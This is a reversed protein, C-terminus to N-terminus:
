WLHCWIHGHCVLDRNTRLRGSLGEGPRPFLLFLHSGFGSWHHPSSTHNFASPASARRRLYGRPLAATLWAGSALPLMTGGIQDVLNPKRLGQLISRQLRGWLSRWPGLPQALELVSDPRSLLFSAPTGAAGWRWQTAWAAANGKAIEDMGRVVHLVFNPYITGRFAQYFYYGAAIGVYIHEVAKYIPNDRYLFSFVALTFFCVLWVGVVDM